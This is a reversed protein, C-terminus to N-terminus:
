GANDARENVLVFGSYGNKGCMIFPVTDSIRLIFGANHRCDCLFCFFVNIRRRNPLFMGIKTKTNQQCKEKEKYLIYVSFLDCVCIIECICDGILCCIFCPFQCFAGVVQCLSVEILVFSPIFRTLAVPVERDMFLSDGNDTLAVNSYCTVHFAFVASPSRLVEDGNPCVIDGDVVDVNEGFLLLVFGDFNHGFVEGEFVAFDFSDIFPAAARDDKICLVIFFIDAFCGDSCGAAINRCDAFDSDSSRGFHRVGIVAVHCNCANASCENECCCSTCKSIPFTCLRCM